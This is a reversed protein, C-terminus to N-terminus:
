PEVRERKGVYVARVGGIDDGIVITHTHTHTHTHTNVYIARVGGVVDGIADGVVDSVDANLYEKVRNLRPLNTKHLDGIADGVVESM